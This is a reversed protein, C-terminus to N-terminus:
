WSAWEWVSPLFLGQGLAAVVTGGNFKAPDVALMYKLGEAAGDLTIAYVVIGTLLVFLGPMLFNVSGNLEKQYVGCLWTSVCFSSPPAGSFRNQPGHYLIQLILPFDAATTELPM